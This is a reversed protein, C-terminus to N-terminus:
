LQELARVHAPRRRHRATRSPGAGARAFGGRKNTTRRLFRSQGIRSCRSRGCPAPRAQRTTLSHRGRSPLRTRRSGVSGRRAWAPNRRCLSRENAHDVYIRMTVTDYSAVLHHYRGDWVFSGADPRFAICTVGLDGSRQFALGEPYTFFEYLHIPNIDGRGKIVFVNGLEAGINVWLEITMPANGVFDFKDGIRVLANGDLRLAGNTDGAIAGPGGLTVNGVYTGDNGNGTEDHAKIEGSAEGFRWYAVPHDALVVDRYSMGADSRVGGDAAGDDATAADRGSEDASEFALASSLIPLARRTPVASRM